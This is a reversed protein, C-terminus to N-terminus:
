RNEALRLRRQSSHLRERETSGVGRLRKITSTTSRDAGEDLVGDKLQLFRVAFYVDLMGGPGYKIDMAGGAGSRRREHELRERVRKTENSLQEVTVERRARQHVAARAADEVSRGLELDGGVARLKVYALWEWIVAREQVYELFARAPTALAGNKGDPRLRLDVRYLQGERTVSSLTAVFLETFLAMLEARSLAGVPDVPQDAYVLILDLDSGYDLGGGSLRGLGLVALQPGIGPLAQEGIRRTVERHAILCGANISAAAIESQRANTELISIAGAADGAAVEILLRAWARRLSALEAGFGNERLVAQRLISAYQDM